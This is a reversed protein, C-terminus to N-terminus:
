IREKITNRLGQRVRFLLPMYVFLKLKNDHWCHHQRSIKRVEVTLDAMEKRNKNALRAWNGAYKWAYDHMYFQVGRNNINLLGNSKCTDLNRAMAKMVDIRVYNKTISTGRIRRYYLPKNLVKIRKVKAMCELHFLNDEFLIGEPFIIGNDLIFERRYLMCCASVINYDGNEILKNLIRNSDYIENYEGRYKYGRESWNLKPNGDVFTYASFKIIDLEQKTCESTLVEMANKELYDDSDLFYVYEGHAYELGMNRASSLGGNKKYVYLWDNREAYKKAISASADTSGDDVLIVEASAAITQNEVSALCEDLYSEVNYIPIIITVIKKM